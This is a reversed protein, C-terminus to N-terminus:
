IKFCTKGNKSIRGDLKEYKQQPELRNEAIRELNLISYRKDNSLKGKSECSHKHIVLKHYDPFFSSCSLCVFSKDRQTVIDHVKVYKKNEDDRATDAIIGEIKMQKSDEFSEPQALIKKNTVINKNSNPKSSKTRTMQKTLYQPLPKANKRAKIKKKSHIRKKAKFKSKGKMTANKVQKKNKKVKNSVAHKARPHLKNYKSINLESAVKDIKDPTKKFSQVSTAPFEIYSSSSLASKTSSEEISSVINSSCQKSRKEGIENINRAILGSIEDRSKQCPPSLCNTEHENFQEFSKSDFKEISPEEGTSTEVTVEIADLATLGSKSLHSTSLSSTHNDTKNKSDHIPILGSEKIKTNNLVDVLDDKQKNPCNNPVFSPNTTTKSRQHPSSSDHSSGSSTSFPQNPKATKGLFRRRSNGIDDPVKELLQKSAMQQVKKRRGSSQKKRLSLPLTEESESLNHLTNTGISMDTTEISHDIDKSDIKVKPLNSINGKCDDNTGSRHINLLHTSLSRKSDFLVFCVHCRYWFFNMVPSTFNSVDERVNDNGVSTNCMTDNQLKDLDVATLKTENARFIASIGGIQFMDDPSIFLPNVHLRLTHTKLELENAFTELENPCCVDCRICKPQFSLERSDDTTHMKSLKTSDPNKTSDEKRPLRISQSAEWVFYNRHEENLNNDFSNQTNVDELESVRSLSCVATDLVDDVISSAICPGDSLRASLVSQKVIYTDSNLGNQHFLATQVMEDVLPKVMKKKFPSKKGNKGSIDTIDNIPLTKSSSPKCHTSIKSNRNTLSTSELPHNQVKDNEDLSKEESIGCDANEMAKRMVSIVLSKHDPQMFVKKSLRTESDINEIVNELISEAIKQVNSAEM